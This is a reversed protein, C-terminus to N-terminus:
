FSYRAMAAVRNDKGKEGAFTEREGYVYEVGFTMPKNPTYMLNIWGQQLEKNAGQNIDAFRNEKAQMMGYGLTSRLKENILYTAGLSVADFVNNELTTADVVFAANSYMTMDKNGESHSYDVFAKVTPNIQYATGVGLGWATTKLSEQPSKARNQEVFARGSVIGKGEAYKQNVKATLTPLRNDASKQELGVFFQTEASLNDSYRLMARRDNQVGLNLNFDLMEPIVELNSFSSTTQGILWNNYTLYGHRLRLKSDLTGGDRLDVEIKGGLTQAALPTKFDVGLRTTNVTSYLKDNHEGNLAVDDIRNFISKGGEAQYSVDGRIFGYLTAEAGGKTQIALGISTPQREVVSEASSVQQAPVITPSNQQQILARLEQIEARLQEIETQETKAYTATASVAIAIVLASKAMGQVNHNKVM